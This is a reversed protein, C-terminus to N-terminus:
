ESFLERAPFLKFVRPLTPTFSNQFRPWLWVPARAQEPGSFRQLAPTPAMSSPPSSSSGQRLLRPLQNGLWGRTGVHEQCERQCGLWRSLFTMDQHPAVSLPLPRQSFLGSSPLPSGANAVSRSHLGRGREQGRKGWRFVLLLLLARCSLRKPKVLGPEAGPEVVSCSPPRPCTM